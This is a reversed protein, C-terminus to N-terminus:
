PNLLNLADDLNIPDSINFDEIEQNLQTPHVLTTLEAVM